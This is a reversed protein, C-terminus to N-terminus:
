PREELTGLTDIPLIVIEVDGTVTEWSGYGDYTPKTEYWWWTNDHDQSVFNAWEPADEWNPKNMALETM